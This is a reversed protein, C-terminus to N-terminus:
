RNVKSLADSLTKASIKAKYDPLVRQLHARIEAERAFLASFADALQDERQLGQVPVVYGEHGGFLDEAIGRAKVSYGCVLTPVACSYAAITSHTRAGVFFRLKSILGKIEMCNADDVLFVRGTSKYKEYLSRLPLRDDGGEWVVHPVLAIQLDTTDLIREILRCYNKVTMGGNSENQVIMPSLNIGVAKEPTLGEAEAAKGVPLIFAGDPMYVVNTMGAKICADYTIPERATILTFCGLHQALGQELDSPELSTGLMLYPKGTAAIMDDLAYYGVGKRYCYNDGGIAVVLDSKKLLQRFEGTIPIKSAKDAGFLRKKVHYLLNYVSFRGPLKRIGTLTMSSDSLYKEDDGPRYSYLTIDADPYAERLLKETTRALAECGHNGSGGHQCVLIKMVYM